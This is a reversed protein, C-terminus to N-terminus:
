SAKNKLAQPIEILLSPDMEVESCRRNYETLLRAIEGRGASESFTSMEDINQSVFSEISVVSVRASIEERVNQRAGLLLSEPVLLYVRLGDVLNEDIRQYHSPSPSVTVHVATDGVYFDGPMSHSQDATSYSHNSVVLNPFRLQLIAGVLHHAVPACRKGSKAADLLEIVFQMTTKEPSFSLQLSGQDFAEPDRQEIRRPNKRETNESL